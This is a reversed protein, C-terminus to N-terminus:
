GVEARVQAREWDRILAQLGNDQKVSSYRLAYGGEYIALALTQGAGVAVLKRKLEANEVKLEANEAELDEYTEWVSM